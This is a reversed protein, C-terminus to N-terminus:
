SCTTRRAFLRWHAAYPTWGSPSYPKFEDTAVSLRPMQMNIGDAMFSKPDRACVGRKAFKAQHETVLTFGTGPGTALGGPCDNRRRSSNTCELQKVFDKFFDGVEGIRQRNLLFKPNVDMGLNPQSGCLQGREDYHIPEYANQVVRDPAVGCGDHLADKVAKLRKDLQAM